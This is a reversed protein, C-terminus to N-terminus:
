PKKARDPSKGKAKSAEDGVPTSHVFSTIRRLHAIFDNEFGELIIETEGGDVRVTIVFTPAYSLGEHGRYAPGAAFATAAKRLDALTTADLKQQPKVPWVPKKVKDPTSDGLHEVQSINGTDDIQMQVSWGKYRDAGFSQFRLWAAKPLPSRDRPLTTLRAPIPGEVPAKAPMRFTGMLFEQVNDLPVVGGVNPSAPADAVPTPASDAAGTTSSSSSSTADGSRESPSSASTASTRSSSGTPEGPGRTCAVITTVGFFVAVARSRPRGVPAVDVADSKAGCFPCRLDSVRVHRRCPRLRTGM